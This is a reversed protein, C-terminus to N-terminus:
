NRWFTMRDSRWGPSRRSGPGCGEEDMLAHKEKTM